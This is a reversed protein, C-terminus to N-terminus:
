RLSFSLKTDNIITDSKKEDWISTNISSIDLTYQGILKKEDFIPDCSFM